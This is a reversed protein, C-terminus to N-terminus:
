KDRFRNNTFSGKAMRDDFKSLEVRLSAPPTRQVGGRNKQDLIKVGQGIVLHKQM